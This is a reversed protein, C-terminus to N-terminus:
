SGQPRPPGRLDDRSCVTSSCARPQRIRHRRSSTRPRSRRRRRRRSESSRARRAGPAPEGAQEVEVSRRRASHTRPVAGEVERSRKDRRGAEPRWRPRGSRGRARDRGSRRHARSATWGVGIDATSWRYATRQRMFVWESLRRGTSRLLSGDTPASGDLREREPMRSRPRGREIPVGLDRRGRSADTPTRRSRGRYVPERGAPRRVLMPHHANRIKEADADFDLLIRTAVGENERVLGLLIHETGIYNHGLSLAERLALELVKKSRPTFPIQGSASRM